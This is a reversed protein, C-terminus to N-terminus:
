KKNKDNKSEPKGTASETAPVGLDVQEAPVGEIPNPEDFGVQGASEKIGKAIAKDLDKDFSEKLVEDRTFKHDFTPTADYQWEGKNNFYVNEISHEYKLYDQLSALKDTM